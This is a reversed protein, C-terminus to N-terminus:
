FRMGTYKIWFPGIGYKEKFINSYRFKPLFAPFVRELDNLRKHILPGVDSGSDVAGVHWTWAV